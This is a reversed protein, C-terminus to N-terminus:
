KGVLAAMLPDELARVRARLRSRKEYVNAKSTEMMEAIMEPELDLICCGLFLIEKPKNELHLAECLRTVAGDLEQDLHRIMAAGDNDTRFVYSFEKKIRQIADVERMRGRERWWFTSRLEGVQRLRNLRDRMFDERERAVIEEMERIRDEQGSVLQTKEEQVKELEEQMRERLEILRDREVRLRSKRLLLLLLLSLMAFFIGGAAILTMRNRERAEKAPRAADDRLAQTVSDELTKQILVAESRYVDAQERIANEYDGRAEDIRALWILAARDQEAYARLTPIIEDAAAREGMLELAYAYVGAENVDFSGTLERLRDLLAIAGEPDPRPQVVKMQACDSLYSPATEPVVEFYPMAERYLSDALEWKQQGHYVGALLSLAPGILPDNTQRFIEVVKEGYEQAMARNYVSKYMILQSIYLLGRAHQDQVDDAYTEARAFAVAAENVDGRYFQIRGRYFWLKMKEDPTGHREFWGAAPDLLGPLTIDDYCKDQAMMRLLAYRAKLRRSRLATTDMAQLVTRASDPAENIYSEVDSLATDIRSVPHCAVLLAICLVAACFLSFLRSKM